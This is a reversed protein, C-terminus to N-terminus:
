VGHSLVQRESAKGALIKELAVRLETATIPRGNYKVVQFPMAIGTHERIVGALQASYNM